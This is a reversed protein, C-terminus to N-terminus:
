RLLTVVMASAQIHISTHLLHALEITHVRYTYHGMYLQASSTAKDMCQLVLDHFADVAGAPM